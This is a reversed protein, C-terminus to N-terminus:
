KEIEIITRSWSASALLLVSYMKGDTRARQLVRELGALPSEDTPQQERPLPTKRHHEAQQKTM